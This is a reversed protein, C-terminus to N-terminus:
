IVVACQQIRFNLWEFSEPQGITTMLRLLVKGRRILDDHEPCYPDSQATFKAIEDVISIIKSM